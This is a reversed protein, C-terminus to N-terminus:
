TEEGPVMKGSLTWIRAREVLVHRFDGPKLDERPFDIVRGSASKGLLNGPDRSSPGEVLVELARGVLKRSEELAIKNQVEILRSLRSKRESEPVMGPLSAAPTEKRPSYFYTYAAEFRVEQILELTQGFEEETESPFGCIIDTTLCVEPITRRVFDALGLFDSRTYGRNMLALIRDSGAQVPLHFQPCVKGLAGLRSIAERSFDRPHSTLFRIWHIGEVQAVSECLEAFGEKLGLDKGFVNVNQGLLTVEKVGRSALDRIFRIIEDPNRSVEPGRVYPVICYSCHNTCGRVINVFASFPKDLVIGDATEGDFAGLGLFGGASKGKAAKELIEPLREIDNPGLVFDLIPLDSFLKERDKQPVCGAIGILLRPNEGKLGALARVRSFLRQEAHERVCCSNFLILDAEREDLAESFGESALIGRIRQGDAQNMQCGFITLHYKRM